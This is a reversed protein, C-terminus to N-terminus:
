RGLGGEFRRRAVALVDVHLGGGAACRDAGPDDIRLPFVLGPHHDHDVLDEAEAVPNAADGVLEGALAEDRDNWVEVGAVHRASSAGVRDAVGSSGRARRFAARFYAIFSGAALPLTAVM